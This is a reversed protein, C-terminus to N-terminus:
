RGMWGGAILVVARHEKKRGTGGCRFSPETHLSADIHRCSEVQSGSGGVWKYLTGHYM